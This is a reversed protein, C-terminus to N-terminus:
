KGIKQLVKVNSVNETASQIYQSVPIVTHSVAQSQQSTESFSNVRKSETEQKNIIIEHTKIPYQYFFKQM